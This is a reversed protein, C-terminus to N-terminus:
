AVNNDAFAATIPSMENAAKEEVFAQMDAGTNSTNWTAVEQTLADASNQTSGLKSPPASSSFWLDQLKYGSGSVKGGTFIWLISDDSSFNDFTVHNKGDTLVYDRGVANTILNNSKFM